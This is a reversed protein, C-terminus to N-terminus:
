VWCGVRAYPTIRLSEVDIPRSLGLSVMADNGSLSKSRFGNSINSMDGRSLDSSNLGFSAMLDVVYEDIQIKGYAFVSGQQITGSGYAPNLATNSLAVGGGFTM